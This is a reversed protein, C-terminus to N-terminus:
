ENDRIIVRERVREGESTIRRLAVQERVIGGRKSRRERLCAKDRRM